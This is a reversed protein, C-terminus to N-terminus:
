ISMRTKLELYKNVTNVTLNEPSTLISLIGHRYLEKVMLRKEFAYKEAITKIYIEEISSAPQRILSALETNEFFVVLLLHYRAIRKLSNLDRQLSELSEFNTFLLLLSRHTIRSRVLSYLKEFDPELFDTQQGYLAEQLQNMQGPKKDAPVFDDVQQSLTILGAKDQRALSVHSLVLSANIAYDLLSLGGFPMKMVRGKNIISYIQQSKEDTYNNVMLDGRKGTAKWNITRYDDGRIYEKIQEFELSHGLRRIRKAGAEQLRDTAALLQYRRLQLFAPYVKVLHRAALVYRREVLRLPSSVFLNINGFQYEGRVTPRVQYDVRGVGEKDVRLKREWHGTHLQYPLEEFVRITVPFSYRSIVRIRVQNIDGNSLRDPVERGGALGNTRSYLLVVDMLLALAGLVLIGHGVVLLPPYFYSVVYVLSALGALYYAWKQLYFSRIM